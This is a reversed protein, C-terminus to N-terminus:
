FAGNPYTQYIGEAAAKTIGYKTSPDCGKDSSILLCKSVGNDSACQIVNQAGVTNVRLYEEPDTEGREVRKLAAANVVVDQHRTVKHMLWPDCIDGLYAKVQPLKQLLGAQKHGDRSVITVTDGQSVFHEVLLSGLSGTGGTILVNMNDGIQTKIFAEIDAQPKFNEGDKLAQTLEGPSTELVDALFETSIEIM